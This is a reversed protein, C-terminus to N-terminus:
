GSRIRRFRANRSTEYFTCHARQISPGACTIPRRGENRRNSVVRDKFSKGTGRRSRDHKRSRLAEFPHWRGFANDRKAGLGGM